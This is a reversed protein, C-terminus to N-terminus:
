KRNITIKKQNVDLSVSYTTELIGLAENLDASPLTGSFRDHLMRSSTKDIFKVGYNGEITALVVALPENEFKLEGRQWATSADNREVSTVSISNTKLDLTAKQVPQLTATAASVTSSLSVKGEELLVTARSEAARARLNFTTGLVEVRLGRASVTFPHAADRSVKFRAEGEIKVSRSGRQFAAPDYSLRTDYNLRVHTGDPLTVSVKEGFGTEVTTLTPKPNQQQYLLWGTTFMLVPFLIVAARKLARTLAALRPKQAPTEDADLTKSRIRQWLSAQQEATWPALEYDDQEWRAQMEASLQTDTMANVRDREKTFTNQNNDNQM